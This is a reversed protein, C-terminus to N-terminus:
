VVSTSSLLLRETPVTWQLLHHDSLEVDMIEVTLPPLDSRTAVVDLLGGLHHTPGNVHLDLSYINSLGVFRSVHEDDTRYLKVNFYSM